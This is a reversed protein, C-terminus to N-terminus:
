RKGKEERWRKCRYYAWTQSPNLMILTMRYPPRLPEILSILIESGSPSRLNGHQKILVAKLADIKPIVPNQPISDPICRALTTGSIQSTREMPVYFPENLAGLM